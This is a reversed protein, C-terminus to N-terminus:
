CIMFFVMGLFLTMENLRTSQDIGSEDQNKQSSKAKEKSGGQTAYCTVAIVGIM